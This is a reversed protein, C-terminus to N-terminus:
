ICTHGKRDSIDIAPFQGSNNSADIQPMKSSFTLKSAIERETSTLLQLELLIHNLPVNCSRGRGKNTRRNGFIERSKLYIILFMHANVSATSDQNRECWIRQIQTVWSNKDTREQQCTLLGPWQYWLCWAIEPGRQGREGERRQTNVKM